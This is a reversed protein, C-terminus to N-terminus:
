GDGLAERHQERNIGLIHGHDDAADVLDGAASPARDRDPLLIGAQAGVGAVQDHQRLGARLDAGQQANQRQLQERVVHGNGAAVVGVEGAVQALRQRHISAQEKMIEQTRLRGEPYWSLSKVM